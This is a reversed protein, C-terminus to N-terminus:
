CHKGEHSKNKFFHLMLKGTSINTYAYGRNERNPASPNRPEDM